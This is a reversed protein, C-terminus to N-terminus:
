RANKIQVLRNDRGGMAPMLMYLGNEEPPIGIVGARKGAAVDIPEYEDDADSDYGPIFPVHHGVAAHKGRTSTYTAGDWGLDILEDMSYSAIHRYRGSPEPHMKSGVEDYPSQADGDSDMVFPTRKGPKLIRIVPERAKSYKFHMIARLPDRATKGTRGYPYSGALPNNSFRRQILKIQDDNDLRFQYRSKSVNGFFSKMVNSVKQITSPAPQGDFQLLLNAWLHALGQGRLNLDSTNFSGPKMQKGGMTKGTRMFEPFTKIAENMITDWGLAESLHNVFELLISGVAPFNTPLVFEEDDDMADRTMNVRTLLGALGQRSEIPNKPPHLVTYEAVGEDDTLDELVLRRYSKCFEVPGIEDLDRYHNNFYPNSLVHWCL